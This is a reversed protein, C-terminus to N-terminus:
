PRASMSCLESPVVDFVLGIELARAPKIADGSCIMELALSPGVLRRCASLAAGGPYHRDESGALWLEAKRIHQGGRSLRLSMALELRAM